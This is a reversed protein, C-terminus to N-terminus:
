HEGGQHKAFLGHLPAVSVPQGSRVQKSFNDCGGAGHAGPASCKRGWATPAYIPAAWKKVEDALKAFGAMVIPRMNVSVKGRM